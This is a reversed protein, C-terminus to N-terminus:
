FAITAQIISGFRWIKITWTGPIRKEVLFPSPPIEPFLPLDQFNFVYAVSFFYECPLTTTQIVM